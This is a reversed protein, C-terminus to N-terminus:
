YDGTGAPWLYQRHLLAGDGIRPRALDPHAHMGGRQVAGIQQLPPAGVGGGGPRGSVHGPHPVRPPAAAHPPPRPHPRPAVPPPTSAPPPPEPRPPPPVPTIPMTPPPPGASYKTTCSRSAMRMGWGSEPSSAAAM